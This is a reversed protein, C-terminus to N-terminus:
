DDPAELPDPAVVQRLNDMYDNWASCYKYWWVILESGEPLINSGLEAKVWHEFIPWHAKISDM